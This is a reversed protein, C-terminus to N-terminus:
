HGRQKTYGVALVKDTVSVKVLQWAVVTYGWFVAAGYGSSMLWTISYVNRKRSGPDARVQVMLSPSLENVRM